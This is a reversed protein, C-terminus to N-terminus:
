MSISLKQLFTQFYLSLLAMVMQTALDALVWNPSTPAIIGVNHESDIGKPTPLPCISSITKLPREQIIFGNVTKGFIGGPFDERKCNEVFAFL